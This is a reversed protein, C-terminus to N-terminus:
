FDLAGQISVRNKEDVVVFKNGKKIISAKQNFYLPRVFAIDIKKVGPNNEIISNIAINASAMGQIFADKHGIARAFFRSIHLINYDGSLEGYKYGLKPCLFFQGIEDSAFDTPIDTEGPFFSRSFLEEEKIPDFEMVEVGAISPDSSLHVLNKIDSEQISSSLVYDEIRLFPVVSNEKFVITEGVFIARKKDKSFFVRIPARAEVRYSGNSIERDDGTFEIGTKLHIVHKFNIGFSSLCLHMTKITSSTFYNYFSNKSGGTGLSRKWKEVKQDDIRVFDSFFVKNKESITFRHRKLTGRIVKILDRITHYYSQLTIM